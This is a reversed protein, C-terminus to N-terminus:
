LSPEDHASTKSRFFPEVLDRLEERLKKRAICLSAKIADKSTDLIEAIEPISLEECANLHIAQRQREPLARMAELM